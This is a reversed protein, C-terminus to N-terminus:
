PLYKGTILITGTTGTYEVKGTNKNYVFFMKTNQPSLDDSSSYSLKLATKLTAEDVPYVEKNEIYYLEISKNMHNLTELDVASKAKERMGSYKPVAIAALIGLIAIVIILEILTFGKRNNLRKQIAKIM